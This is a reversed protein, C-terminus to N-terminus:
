RRPLERPSPDGAFSGLWNAVREQEDAERHEGNAHLQRVRAGIGAPSYEVALMACTACFLMGGVRVTLGPAECM